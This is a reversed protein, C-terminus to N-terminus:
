ETGGQMRTQPFPWLGLLLVNTLYCLNPIDTRSVNCQQFGLGMVVALQLFSLFTNEVQTHLQTWSVSMVTTCTFFQKPTLILRTCSTFVASYFEELNKPNLKIKKKGYQMMKIMSVNFFYLLCFHFFAFM